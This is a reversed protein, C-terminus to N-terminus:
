KAKRVFQGFKYLGYFPVSVVGLVLLGPWLVATFFFLSIDWQKPKDSDHSGELFCGYGIWIFAGAVWLAFLM